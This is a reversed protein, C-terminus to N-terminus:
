NDDSPKQKDAKSPSDSVNGDILNEKTPTFHDQDLGLLDVNGAKEPSKPTQSSNLEKTPEDEEEDEYEESDEQDEGEEGKAEEQEAKLRQQEELQKKAYEAAEVLKQSAQSKMQQFWSSM